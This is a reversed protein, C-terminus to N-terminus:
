ELLDVDIDFDLDEINESLVIDEETIYVYNSKVEPKTPKFELPQVNSATYIDILISINGVVFLIVIIALVVQGLMISDGSTSIGVTYSSCKRSCNEQFNFM